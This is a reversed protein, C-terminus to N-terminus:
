LKWFIVDTVQREDRCQILEYNYKIAIVPWREWISYLRGWEIWDDTQWASNTTRNTYLRVVPYTFFPGASGNITRRNKDILTRRNRRIGYSSASPQITLLWLSASQWVLSPLSYFLTFCLARLHPQVIWGNPSTYYPPGSSQGTQGVFMGLRVWGLNGNLWGTTWDDPKGTLWGTMWGTMWDILWRTMWGTMWTDM